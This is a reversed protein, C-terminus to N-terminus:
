VIDVNLSAGLDTVWNLFESPFYLDPASVGLDRIGVGCAIVLDVSLDRCLQRVAEAPVPVRRRFEQLLGDIEFPGSGEVKLMWGYHRRIGKGDKTIPDGPRFSTTPEIGLRRTIEDPNFREGYFRFYM